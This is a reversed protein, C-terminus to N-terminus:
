YTQQRDLVIGATIKGATMTATAVTFRLQIYRHTVGVPIAVAVNYGAILTALTIVGSTSRVTTGANINNSGDVGTGSVLEVSLTGAGGSTFTQVVQCLLQARSSKGLDTPVTNGMNDTAAAGLDICNTSWVTSAAIALDQNDSFLNENDLLM